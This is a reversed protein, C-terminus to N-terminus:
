FVGVQDVFSEYEDAEVQNRKEREKDDIKAKFNDHVNTILEVLTDKDEQEYKAKIRELRFRTEIEIPDVDSIDILHNKKKEVLERHRDAVQIRFFLFDSVLSYNYEILDKAALCQRVFFISVASILASIVASILLVLQM